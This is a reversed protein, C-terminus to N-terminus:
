RTGVLWCVVLAGVIGVCWVLGQWPALDSRRRRRYAGNRVRRRVVLDGHPYPLRERVRM